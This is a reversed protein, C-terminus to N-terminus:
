KMIHKRIHAFYLYLHLTRIHNLNLFSLPFPIKPQSSYMLYMSKVKSNEKHISKMIPSWSCLLSGNLLSSNSIWKLHIKKKWKPYHWPYVQVTNKYVSFHENRLIIKKLYVSIALSLFLLCYHLM